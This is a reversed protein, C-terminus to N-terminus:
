RNDERKEVLYVTIEPANKLDEKGVGQKMKLSTKSPEIPVFPITPKVKTNTIVFGKAIIETM